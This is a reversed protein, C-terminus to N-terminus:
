SLSPLALVDKIFKAYRATFNELTHHECVYHWASHSADRLSEASMHSATSISALVAKLDGSGIPIGFDGLDVSAERTAVPVLGAHMAHILAGGGGESCSPYIAFGHSRRIDEFTQSGPDVWGPFHINPLGTLEHKYHKFFDAEKEPRGCVTLHLDPTAAFAELVLDLGKHVM